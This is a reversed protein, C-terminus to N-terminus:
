YGYGEFESPDYDSPYDMANDFQEPLDSERAVEENQAEQVAPDENQYSFADWERSGDPHEVVQYGMFADPRESGNSRYSEVSVFVQDGADLSKAWGSERQKYSGRNLSRDQAELNEEGSAGHFRTGILHGGDDREMRDEGGVSRQVAADREGKQLTLSGSAAKGYEGQSYQYDGQQNDRFLDPNHLDTHLSRKEQTEQTEQSPQQVTGNETSM